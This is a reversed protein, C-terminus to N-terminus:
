ERGVHVDEHVKNEVGNHNHQESYHGVLEDHERVVLLVVVQRSVIRHQPLGYENHVHEGSKVRVGVVLQHGNADGFPDVTEEDDEDEEVGDEEHGDGGVDQEVRNLVRAGLGDDDIFDFLLVVEDHREDSQASVGLLTNRIFYQDPEHQLHKVILGLVEVLNGLDALVQVFFDVAGYLDGLEHLQALYNLGFTIQVRGTELDPLSEVVELVVEIVPKLDFLDDEAGLEM